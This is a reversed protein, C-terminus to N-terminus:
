LELKIIMTNRLNDPEAITNNEQDLQDMQSNALIFAHDGEICFTTPIDMAPHGTILPLLRVVRDGTENLEIKVFSHLTKDRDGNSIGYLSGKHYKLGDVAIKHNDFGDHVNLIERSGLDIIRISETWSDVYLRRNDKSIAIGNPLAISEDILFTQFEGDPYELKYVVERMTDTIYVELQDSIALDNMFHSITDKLQYTKVMRDEELDYVLLQSSGHGEISKSSLAFLLDGKVEMGLGHMFGFQGSEFLDRSEGTTLDYTIVKDQHISSILLQDKAKYYAIGEPIWMKSNEVEIVEVLGQGHLPIFPCVLLIIITYLLKM